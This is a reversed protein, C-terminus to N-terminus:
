TTSGAIWTRGGSYFTKNFWRAIEPHCRYHEDLLRIDSGVLNAYADFSSFTEQGASSRFRLRRGETESPDLGVSRLVALEQENSIKAIPPLQMADGVILLQKARFAAPLVHATLCQSAEDVIVVDFLGPELPFNSALSLNTCAWARLIPLAEKFARTLNAGTSSARALDQLSARGQNIKGRVIRNTLERSSQVWQDRLSEFKSDEDGLEEILATIGTLRSAIRERLEAWTAVRELSDRTLPVGFEKTARRIRWQVFFKAKALTRLRSQLPRLAEEAIPPTLVGFLDSGLTEEQIVEETQRVHLLRLQEISNMFADYSRSAANLDSELRAREAHPLPASAEVAASVLPGLALKRDTNGTRMLLGRVIEDAREAAVDVAANNTSVVLVSEGRLWANAVLDVVVQSKGTGPPGTAVTVPRSLSDVIVQHQSRNVSLPAAISRSGDPKEAPSVDRTVLAGAPTTVWDSRKGMAELEEILRRTFVPGGRSLLAANYIGPAESITELLHQSEFGVLPLGLSESAFKVIASRIEALPITRDALSNEVSDVLDPNFRSGDAFVPNIDFEAELRIVLKDADREHPSCTVTWLPAARAEGDDDYVVTPWGYVVAENRDVGRASTSAPGEVAAESASATSIVEDGLMLQANAEHVTPTREVAELIVCRRM